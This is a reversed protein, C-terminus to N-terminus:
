VQRVSQSNIDSLTWARDRIGGEGEREREITWDLRLSLACKKEMGNM